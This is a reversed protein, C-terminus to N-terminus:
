RPELMGLVVALLSVGVALYGLYVSVARQRILMGLCVVVAGAALAYTNQDRQWLLAALETNM